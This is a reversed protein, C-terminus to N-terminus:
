VDFIVKVIGEPDVEIEHYSVAKVAGHLEHKGVDMKEGRAMVTMGQEDDRKLTVDFECFLISEVEFLYVLESLFDVLLSELDDAKLELRYEGTPEVKDLDTIVSFMGRAIEAFAEELDEGWARLAVDATHELQEFGM